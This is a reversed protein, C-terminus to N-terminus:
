HFLGGVANVAGVIVTTVTSTIATGILTTGLMAGTVFGLVATSIKHKRHRCLYGILILLLIPVAIVVATASGSAPHTGAALIVPNEPIIV